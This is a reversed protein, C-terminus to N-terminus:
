RFFFLRLAFVVRLSPLEGSYYSPSGHRRSSCCCRVQRPAHRGHHRGGKHGLRRLSTVHHWPFCFLYGHFLSVLTTLSARELWFSLKLLKAKLSMGQFVVDFCSSARRTFSECVLTIVCPRHRPVVMSCRAVAMLLPYRSV